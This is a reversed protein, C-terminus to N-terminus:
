MEPGVEVDAWNEHDLNLSDPVPYDGFFHNCMRSQERFAEMPNGEDLAKRIKQLFPLLPRDNDPDPDGTEVSIWFSVNESLREVPPIGLTIRISEDDKEWRTRWRLVRERQEGTLFTLWHAVVKELRDHRAQIVNQIARESLPYTVTVNM